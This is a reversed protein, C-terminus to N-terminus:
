GGPRSGSRLQRREVPAGAVEGAAVIASSRPAAEVRRDLHDDRGVRVGLVAARDRGVAHRPQDRAGRREAADEAVDRQCTSSLVPSSTPALASLMMTSLASFVGPCRRRGAARGTSPPGAPRLRDDVLVDGRRGRQGVLHDALDLAVQGPGVRRGRRTSARRRSRRRGARRRGCGAARPPAWSANMFGPPM